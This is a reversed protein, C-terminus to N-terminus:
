GEFPIAHRGLYLEWGRARQRRDDRRWEPQHHRHLEDGYRRQRAASIDVHPGPAPARAYTITSATGTTASVIRFVGSVTDWVCSGHTTLHASIDAAAQTLSTIASFDTAPLSIGTGNITIDFCGNTILKLDALLTTQAASSFAGSRLYASSAAVTRDTGDITVKMTGNTTAQLRTLLQAAERANFPAGHLWAHTATQAYRGVFLISPQPRQSFFLDAALYEPATSGFDQAVGDLTSYQRIRENTDIVDSSGAICMAGFNRLPVAM